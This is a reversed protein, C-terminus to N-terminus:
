ASPTKFALVVLLLAVVLTVGSTGAAVWALHHLLGVPVRLPAEQAESSALISLETWSVLDTARCTGAEGGSSATASCHRGRAPTACRLLLQPTLVRTPQSFKPDDTDPDGTATATDNYYIDVPSQYRLHVPFQLRCLFRVTSSCRCLRPLCWAVPIAHACGGTTPSCM